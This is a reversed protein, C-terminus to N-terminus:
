NNDDGEKDDEGRRHAASDIEHQVQAGIKQAVSGSPVTRPTPAADDGDPDDDNYAGSDESEIPSDLWALRGDFAQNWGKTYIELGVWIGLVMLILGFLKGRGM